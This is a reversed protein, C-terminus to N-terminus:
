HILIPRQLITYIGRILAMVCMCLAMQGVGSQLRTGTEVRTLLGTGMIRKAQMVHQVTQGYAAALEVLVMTQTHHPM